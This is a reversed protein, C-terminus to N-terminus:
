IFFIILCTFIIFISLIQHSYISFYLFCKIFTTLFILQFLTQSNFRFEKNDNFNRWIYDTFAAIIQLSAILLVFLFQKIASMKSTKLNNDKDKKIETHFDRLSYNREEKNNGNIDRPKTDITNSSKSKHKM